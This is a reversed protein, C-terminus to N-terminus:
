FNKLFHLILPCCIYNKKLNQIKVVTSLKRDKSTLFLQNKNLNKLIFNFIMLKYEFFLLNILKLIIQKIFNYRYKVVSYTLIKINEKDSWKILINSLFDSLGIVVIEKMRIKNIISRIVLWERIKFLLNYNIYNHICEHIDGFRLLKVIPQYTGLITNSEMLINKHAKANLFKESTVFHIKKNMLFAQSKPDLALILLKKKDKNKNIEKLDSFSINKVLILVDTSFSKSLM